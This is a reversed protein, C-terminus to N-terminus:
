LRVRADDGEPMMSPPPPLPPDDSGIGAHSLFWDLCSLSLEYGFKKALEELELAGAVGCSPEAGEDGSRRRL